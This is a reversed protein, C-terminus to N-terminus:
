EEPDPLAAAEEAIRATEAAVFIANEEDLPMDAQEHVEAPEEQFPPPAEMQFLTTLRPLGYGIYISACTEVAGKGLQYATLAGPWKLSSAVAVPPGGHSYTTATWEEASLPSLAPIEPQPPPPKPKDSDEEEEEVPLNTTRGIELIGMYRTCWGDLEGLVSASPATRQGEDTGVEVETVEGEESLSFKGAPALTTAAFLRAILARVYEKEKGPFGPYARVDAALDGTVYKRIRGAIKIQEPTVDPLATWAKSLDTTVFYTFTNLGTGAAEADAPPAPPEPAGEEPDPTLNSDHPDAARRGEAM